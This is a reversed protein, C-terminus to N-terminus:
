LSELYTLLDRQGEASRLSVVRHADGGFCKPEFVEPLTKACGDHLLPARLGLGRLGPVQMRAGTGIDVSDNTTFAEGAHCTSCGLETEFLAKGRM